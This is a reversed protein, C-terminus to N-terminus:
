DMAQILKKNLIQIIFKQLSYITNRICKVNAYYRVNTYYMVTYCM